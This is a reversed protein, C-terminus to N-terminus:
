QHAYGLADIAAIGSRVAGELTSPYPGEVYDGAAVLNAAIAAQPRVVAPMCLFTARREALTRLLRPPERWQTSFTVRAQQLTAAATIDLGREVWSRAGSIVFAFVGDRAGSDDIAGLDFVFQAPADAGSSLVTMAQALRTGPSRVYVTVIPEYDFAMAQKAWTAAHPHALRAAEHATCALVVADYTRGDVTWGSAQATLTAARTGCQLQAGAAALWRAAPDPLLASLPVRPLLLDASGPGSFLADRVVRLFVQASAQAAPTNLAAVCLPEILGDLVRPSLQRTLMAVSAQPDAAFGNLHWRLAAALLGLREGISWGRHGLVARVFALVPAGGTLRLGTGDAGILALPMRLLLQQPDAGIRRMLALTASYAGILIHQGNDLAFGDGNDVRRARGGFQPAMEILTVHYGAATATVAAAIGAWGGGIVAVQRRAQTL